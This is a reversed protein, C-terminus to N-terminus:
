NYKDLLYHCAIMTKADQIEKNKLAKNLEDLTYELTQIDEHENLLGGGTEIKTATDVEAYFLFIRESSIGPSTFIVSIEEIKNVKYGIEELIERRIAAEASEGEDIMGAVIEIMWADRKKHTPYRFQKILIVKKTDTNYVIGATADKRELSFYTVEDSMDGSFKEYRLRAAEIKFFNDFLIDQKSIDIKM